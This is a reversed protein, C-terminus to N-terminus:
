SSTSRSFRLKYKTDLNGLEPFLTNNKHIDTKTQGLIDRNQRLFREKGRTIWSEKNKMGGSKRNHYCFKFINKDVGLGAQSGFCFVQNRM